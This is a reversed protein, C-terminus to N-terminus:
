DGFFARLTEAVATADSECVTRRDDGDALVFGPASEVGHIGCFDTALEGDVGAVAVDDPAADLVRGLDATTAECPDCFRKWLSVVARDREALFTRPDDTVDPLESPVPSDPVAEVVMGTMAILDETTFDGDASRPEVGDLHSRVALYVVFEARSVGRDAVLDAASEGDPLGFTAAVAEHFAAESVGVYSDHYVAHTDDFEDTTRVGGDDGVALVGEEVLADFLADAEDAPVATADPARGDSSEESASTGTEPRTM